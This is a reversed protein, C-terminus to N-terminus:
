SWLALMMREITAWFLTTAIVVFEIGDWISISFHDLGRVSHATVTFSYGNYITRHPNTNMLEYTM